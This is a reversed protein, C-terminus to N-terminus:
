SRAESFGIAVLKSVLGYRKGNKRPLRTFSLPDYCPTEKSIDSIIIAQGTAIVEGPINQGIKIYREGSPHKEYSHKSELTTPSPTRYLRAM